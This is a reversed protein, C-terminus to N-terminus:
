LGKCLAEVAVFAPHKVSNGDNEKTSVALLEETLTQKNSLGLKMQLEHMYKENWCAHVIRIDGLDIWLPLTKFWSILENHIIKGDVEHLFAEHQKYNKSNHNRM